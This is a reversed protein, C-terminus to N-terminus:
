QPHGEAWKKKMLEGRENWKKKMLDGKWEPIPEKKMGGGGGGEPALTYKPPVYKYKFVREGKWLPAGWRDRLEFTKGGAKLKRAVIIEEADTGLACATITVNDNKSLKLGIKDLYWNPALTVGYERGDVAAVLEVYDDGEPAGDYARFGLVDASFTKENTTDYGLGETDALVDHVTRPAQPPESPREKGAFPVDTDPAGCSSLWMALIFLGALGLLNLWLKDNFM